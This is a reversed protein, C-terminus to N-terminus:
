QVQAAEPGVPAFRFMGYEAQHMNYDDTARIIAWMRAALDRVVEQYAPDSAVNRCEHPDAALDYCEDEDFGNFVYKYQGRWITRQTYFFRQGHCEAFAQDEWAV